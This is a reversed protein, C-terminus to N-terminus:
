SRPSIKKQQQNIKINQCYEHMGVNVNVNYAFSNRMRLTCVAAAVEIKIYYM